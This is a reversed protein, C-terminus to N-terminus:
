ILYLKESDNKDSLINTGDNLHVGTQGSSLVYGLGYKSSYDAWKLIIISPRSDFENEILQM